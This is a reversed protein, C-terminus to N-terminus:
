TRPILSQLDEPLSSQPLLTFDGLDDFSNNDRILMVGVYHPEITFMLRGGLAEDHAWEMVVSGDTGPYVANPFVRQWAVKCAFNEATKLAQAHPPPSNNGDWDKEYTSLIQIAKLLAIRERPPREIDQYTTNGVVYGAGGFRTSDLFDPNNLKVAESMELGGYM